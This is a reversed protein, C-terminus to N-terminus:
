DRPKVYAFSGGSTAVDPYETGYKAGAFDEYYISVSRLKIYQLVMDTPQIRHPLTQGSALYATLPVEYVSEQRDPDFEPDSVRDSSQVTASLCVGLAPGGGDNRLIILRGGVLGLDRVWTHTIDGEDDVVEQLAIAVMPARSRQFRRDEGRLVEQTEYVSAWTVVALSITGFSVGFESWFRAKEEPKMTDYWTSHSAYFVIVFAVLLALVILAALQPLTLKGFM